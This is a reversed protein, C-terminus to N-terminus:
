GNKPSKCIAILGFSNNLKDKGPEILFQIKDSNVNQKNKKSTSYFCNRILDLIKKPFIIKVLTKIRGGYNQKKFIEREKLEKFDQSVLKVDKFYFGLLKKLQYPTFEQIHHPEWERNWNFRQLRNPCGIIVVGEKKILYTINELFDFYKELHEIVDFSIILDFYSKKLKKEIEKKSCADLTVFFIKESNYKKKAYNISHKSYDAGIILKENKSLIKSGYGSGCGLDLIKKNKLNFKEKVWFYRSKHAISCFSNIENPVYRIDNDATSIEIKKSM